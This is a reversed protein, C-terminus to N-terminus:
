LQLTASTQSMANYIYTNSFPVFQHTILKIAEQAAAGGMFAAVTHPETAGYRCFEHVYDDKINISLNYEQLLGTVCLKLKSIDEEVQYNYVGPYRSHQQFFRDVARLMLYFVMESDPSDMASTIENKNQSDVSYEEALSRCRVVRLFSAHKCFLKIDKDSISEPALGVSQILSEVHKSVAAADQMAKQRYINQLNIFKQSDAIMDPITGRVPLNGNGENQVFEKVARLMVWFPSSQNNIHNCQESNFLDQVATPIKTPNLATNVNKIAEDFNEEDVPVGNENERIGERVCQRFAEKERYTKPLQGDHESLWKELYKSVIVVWPTHSHDKKDMSELDYSAVHNRLQDFPQDLRLDELANDPHSEIVTHEEVVLRMYGILGYTKCILFPVSASWLVSGLRLCTTEPLHVGIVVTFRHFFEPNNELLKEPSEEVFNGSVDSNLEQLLETAAHARNKGIHNISLFFNNGIDEGTVTHGDVITFAGIGPLVLNKLIETGTATANILCVHANELAEQGHDGWLRLQRDYKQEKSAKTSAM